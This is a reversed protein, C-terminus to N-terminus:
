FGRSVSFYFKGSRGDEGPEDNLPYGYDLNVPGIPTKVRVGVGAGSKFEGSGFDEVKEWINGTDLFAALKVFEIIPITYEVNAILLSEGGIPDGTISDLPGVKREDYGRISKAGGAFFREFIPVKSSDGYADVIGGRVSFRLVSKFKLPM